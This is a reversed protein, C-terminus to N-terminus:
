RENADESHLDNKWRKEDAGIEDYAASKAYVELLDGAYVVYTDGDLFTIGCKEKRREGLEAVITAEDSVDSM